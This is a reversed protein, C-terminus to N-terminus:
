NYDMNISSYINFKVEIVGTKEFKYEKTFDIKKNEILIDFNGEYNFDKGLIITSSETDLIEYKCIIEGIINKEKEKNNGSTAILIIIIILIILFATIVGGILLYKKWKPMEKEFTQSSDSIIDKLNIEM